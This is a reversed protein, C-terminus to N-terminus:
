RAMRPPSASTRLASKLAARTAMLVVGDDLRAVLPQAGLAFGALDGADGGHVLQEGDEIGPEPGAAGPLGVALRLM